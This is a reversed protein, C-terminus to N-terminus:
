KKYILMENSNYEDFKGTSIFGCKAWFDKASKHTDLYINKAGVSFLHQITFNALEKGFGMKRYNPLIYFERIFGYGTYKNWDSNGNDIQFISFGIVKDDFIALSMFVENQFVQKLIYNQCSEIQEETVKNNTVFKWYKSFVDRWDNEYMKDYM